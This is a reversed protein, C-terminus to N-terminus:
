KNVKSIFQHYTIHLILEAHIEEQRRRIDELRKEIGKPIAIGSKRIASQLYTIIFGLGFSDLTHKAETRMNEILENNKNRDLFLRGSTLVSTDNVWKVADDTSDEYVSRKDRALEYRDLFDELESMLLKNDM